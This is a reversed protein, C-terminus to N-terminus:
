NNIIMVKSSRNMLVALGVLNSLFFMLVVTAMNAFDHFYSLSFISAAYLVIVILNAYNVLAVKNKKLLSYLTLERLVMCISSAVLITIVLDPKYLAVSSDFIYGGMYHCVVWVLPVMIIYIGVIGRFLKKHMSFFDRDKKKKIIVTQMVISWFITLAVYSYSLLLYVGAAAAGMLYAVAYRPMTSIFASLLHGLCNPKAFKFLKAYFGFLYRMWRLARMKLLIRQDIIFAIFFVAFVFFLFENVNVDVVLAFAIVSAVGLTRILQVVMLIKELNKRRYFVSDLEVYFELIKILYIGCAM